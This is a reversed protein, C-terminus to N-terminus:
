VLGSLSTTCQTGPHAPAPILDILARPQSGAKAFLEVQSGATVVGGLSAQNTIQIQYSVESTSNQPTTFVQFGQLSFPTAGTSGCQMSVYKIQLAQTATLAPFNCQFRNPNVVSCTATFGYPTAAPAPIPSFSVILGMGTAFIFGARLSKTISENM